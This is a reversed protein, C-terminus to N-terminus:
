SGEAKDGTPSVSLIVINIFVKKYIEEMIEM